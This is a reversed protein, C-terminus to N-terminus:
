PRRRGRRAWAGAARTVGSAETRMRGILHGDADVVVLDGGTAPAGGAGSVGVTGTATVSATVATMASQARDSADEAMSVLSDGFSPGEDEIGLAAGKVVHKATARMLRSPSKIGFFSKFGDFAARAVGFIADKVAGIMSGLGNIIGQVIQKGLGLWDVNRLGNWIASIIQPLAAIIKPLAKLLGGVLSIVLQVGAELLRPLNKLLGAVLQLVLTIAATILQPLMDILGDILSLLLQIGADILKPLNDLIATLLGIVLTLAAELLMPLATILGQVLAMVLQVAGNIIMPLNAILAQVLGTVLQLAGQILLPLATIIGSVLGTVIQTAAAILQPLASVLGSVIRPVAGVIQEILGPLAAVIQEFIGTLSGVLAGADAGSIVFGALAAAVIGLPGGLAALPGTLGGLMPGLLPLKSLLGGLGGSGLALFAAGLPAIAGSLSKVVDIVREVASRIPAPLTDVLGSLMQPASEVVGRLIQKVRPLINGLAVGVSSTLSSTVGSIDADEKGIEALWNKWASKMSAVSGEITSAAEQATTGTIGLEDQVVHIASVIDAFNGVSYKQGSLKEADALLREMETKTGGYGLKLNDLTAFSGRAISQYTQQVSSLDTGMKNANDAMDIIAQNGLQAAAKTDGGLSSILSASFSTIQSMYDNASIGASKYADAAFQQVTGASSKFLTEVGGVAQEWAAFEGVAAKVVGIGKTIVVALGAGLAAVSATAATKIGAGLARGARLGANGLSSALGKFRDTISATPANQADELQKQAAKLRNSAATVTDTTTALTRRASALREEAAVAQSSGAGNKKVAEALKAEAVRVKGADDQQKIRARSLAASASAIEATFRKTAAAGLDGASSTLASKMDTGLTRGATRGVGKFGQGFTKAGASGADKTAKSVSAKFGTMVPFVSVHASGVESSM